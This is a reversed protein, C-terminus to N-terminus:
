AAAYTAYQSLGARSITLILLPTPDAVPTFVGYTTAIETRVSQFNCITKDPVIRTPRDFLREPFYVM